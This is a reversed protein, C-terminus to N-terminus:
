QHDRRWFENDHTAIAISINEYMAKSISLPYVGLQTRVFINVMRAENNIHVCGDQRLVKMIRSLLEISDIEGPTM